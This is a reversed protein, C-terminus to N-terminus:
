LYDFTDKPLDKTFINTVQDKTPVYELKVENELVNKILFHYWISM